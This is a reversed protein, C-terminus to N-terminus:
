IWIDVKIEQNNSLNKDNVGHVGVYEKHVSMNYSDNNDHQGFIMPEGGGGWGGGKSGQIDAGRSVVM